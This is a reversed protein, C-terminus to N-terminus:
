ESSREPCPEAPHETFHQEIFDAARFYTAATDDHSLHNGRERLAEVVEQVFEGRRVIRGALYDATIKQVFEREPASEVPHQAPPEPDGRRETVSPAPNSASTPAVSDQTTTCPADGGEPEPVSPVQSLLADRAAQAQAFRGLLPDLPRSMVRVAGESRLWRLLAYHRMTMETTADEQVSRAMRTEALKRELEQVVRLHDSEPVFRDPPMGLQKRIRAEIAFTRVETDPM